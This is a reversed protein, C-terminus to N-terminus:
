YLEFLTLKKENCIKYVTTSLCLFLVTKQVGWCEVLKDGVQVHFNPSMQRLHSHDEPQEHMFAHPRTIKTINLLPTVHLVFKLVHQKIILGIHRWKKFTKIPTLKKCISGGMRKHPHPFFPSMCTRLTQDTETESNHIQAIVKSHYLCRIEQTQYLTCQISTNECSINRLM